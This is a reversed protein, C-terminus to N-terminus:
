QENWFAKARRVGHLIFGVVMASMLLLLLLTTILAMGSQKRVLTKFLKMITMM